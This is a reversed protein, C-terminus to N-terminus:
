PFCGCHRRKQTSLQVDRICAFSKLAFREGPLVSFRMYRKRCADASHAPVCNKEATETIPMIDTWGEFPGTKIIESM